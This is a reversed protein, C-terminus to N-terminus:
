EMWYWGKIIGLGVRRSFYRRGSGLFLRILFQYDKLLQSIRDEGGGSVSSDKRLFGGSKSPDDM